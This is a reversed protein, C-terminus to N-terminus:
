IKRIEHIRHNDSDSVLIRGDTTIVCGSARRFQGIGSGKSGYSAIFSGDLGSIVQIRNNGTDAIVIYRGDQTVSLDWPNLQGLDQGVSGFARIFKYNSSFKSVRCGRYEAVYVNDYRDVCVGVPGSLLGNGVGVRCFSHIFNGDSDFVSIRHNGFDAVLINRKSDVCVGYPNAFLGNDSGWYGFTRIHSGDQNFIHVQSKGIDTVILQDESNTCIGFACFVRNKGISKVLTDGRFINICGRSGSVIVAISNNSLECLHEPYMVGTKNEIIVRNNIKIDPSTFYFPAEMYSNIIPLVNLDLLKHKGIRQLASECIAKKEETIKYQWSLPYPKLLGLLFSFFQSM